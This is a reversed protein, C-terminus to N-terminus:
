NTAICWTPRERLYLPCVAPRDGRRRASGARSFRVTTGTATIMRDSLVFSANRKLTPSRGGAICFTRHATALNVPNM